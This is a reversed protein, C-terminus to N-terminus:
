PSTFSGRQSGDPDIRYVQDGHRELTGNGGGASGGRANTPPFNGMDPKAPSSSGGGASRRKGANASSTEKSPPPAPNVDGRHKVPLGPGYSEGNKPSGDKRIKLYDVRHWDPKGGSGLDILDHGPTGDEFEKMADRFKQFEEDTMDSIKKDEPLGSKKTVHKIYAETPNHKPDAYTELADRINKHRYKGERLLRQMAKEGTEKDPYIARGASDVGIAGLKKMYDSMGTNGPNNNRYAKTGGVKILHRGESDTYVVAPQGNITTQQAHVPKKM